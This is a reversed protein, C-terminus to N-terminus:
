QGNKSDMKKHPKGGAGNHRRRGNERAVFKELIALDEAAPAAKADEIPEGTFKTCFSVLAGTARMDGKIAAAVLAKIMARQKSIRLSRGNEKIPIQERLEALLDTRFNPAEKRRGKPNGSRGPQFQSEKPPRKYGVADDERDATV